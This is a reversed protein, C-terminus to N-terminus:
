WHRGHLAQDGEDVANLSGASDETVVAGAVAGQRSEPLLKGGDDDDSTLYATKKERKRKARVRM